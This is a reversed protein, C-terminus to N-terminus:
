ARDQLALWGVKKPWVFLVKMEWGATGARDGIGADMKLVLM